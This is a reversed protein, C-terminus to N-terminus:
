LSEIDFNGILVILAHIFENSRAGEDGFIVAGIKASPLDSPVAKSSMMSDANGNQLMKQRNHWSFGCGSLPSHLFTAEEWQRLM